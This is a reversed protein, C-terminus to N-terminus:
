NEERIVPLAKCVVREPDSMFAFTYLDREGSQYIDHYYPSDIKQIGNRPGIQADGVRELHGDIDLYFPVVRHAPQGNHPWESSWDRPGDLATRKFGYRSMTVNMKPEPIEVSLASVAKNVLEPVYETVTGSAMIDGNPLVEYQAYGIEQRSGDSAYIVLPLPEMPEKFYPKADKRLYRFAYIDSYEPPVINDGTMALADGNHILRAEGIGIAEGDKHLILPIDVGSLSLLDVDAQWQWLDLDVQTMIHDLENLVAEIEHIM